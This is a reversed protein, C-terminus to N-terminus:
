IWEDYDGGKYFKMDNRVNKEVTKIMKMRWIAHFHLNRCLGNKELIVNGKWEVASRWHRNHRDKFAGVPTQLCPQGFAQPPMGAKHLVAESVFSDCYEKCARLRCNQRIIWVARRWLFVRQIWLFSFRGNTKWAAWSEDRERKTRRRYAAQENGGFASRGKRFM